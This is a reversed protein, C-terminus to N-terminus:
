QCEHNIFSPTPFRSSDRTDFTCGIRGTDPGYFCGYAYTFGGCVFVVEDAHFYTNDENVIDHEVYLSAECDIFEGPRMDIHELTKFGNRCPAFSSALRASCSLVAGRERRRGVVAPVTSKEVSGTPVPLDIEASSDPVDPFGFFRRYLYRLLHFLM